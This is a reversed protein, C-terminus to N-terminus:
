PRGEQAAFAHLYLWVLVLSFVFFMASLAAAQHFAFAEFAQRYIYIPLVLTRNAPGGRTITYIITIANLGWIMLLLTVSVLVPRIQPLMVHRIEDGFSAGDVRASEYLEHPVTQLGALVMLAVFPFLKWVNIAILAPMVIDPDTLWGVSRDVVGGSTLLHNVIGFETHLMWAWMTAAVIGPVVWPILALSRLVARGRFQQNLFIGALTGLVVQFVISGGVFYVTNWVATATLRGEAVARYNALGVFVGQENTVSLVGTYIVPFLILLALVALAPLVFPVGTM